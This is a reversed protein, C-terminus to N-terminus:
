PAPARAADDTTPASAVVEFPEVVEVSRDAVEDKATLVLRYEGPAFGALPFGILRTVNGAAATIRTAPVERVVAGNPGLLRYGASVHPQGDSDAPKAGYAAYQCGLFGGVAFTRRAVMLPQSPAQGPQKQFTDTVIPSSLRFAGPDPVEFEHTVSGIHGGNKERAILKAQYAGPLLELERVIPFGYAAYRLRSEERLKLNITEDYRKFEDTGRHVVLLLTEIADIQRDGAREFRFQGVSLEALVATRLKGAAVAEFSYASMRMPIGDVEYPSDLAAQFPKEAPPAEKKPAGDPGPAYYGRRARVVVDKRNVVVAIRRFKGDRRAGSPYYGLLYYSESERAIRGMGSALDNTNRISLGGTDAALSQAGESAMAEEGVYNTRDQRDVPGSWEASSFVSGSRLGESDVFYIAANARRSAQNIEAYEEVDPDFIFGESVLLVAKRGKVGALSDVIRKVMQLTAVQRRRAEQRVAQARSAVQMDITTAAGGDTRTERSGESLSYGSAEWRRGVRLAVDVDHFFDIQRAEYDSMYDWTLESTATGKQRKLAALLQEKGDGFRTTMWTASQTSLLTVHDEERLGETLFKEIAKKASQAGAPSIHLGDFVIVFTRGARKLVDTNTSVRQRITSQSPPGTPVVIPEFTAVTQPTGEEALTFDERTLGKIPMGNRDAVVVDVTVLEVDAAFTPAPAATPQPEVAFAAPVTAIALSISLLVRTMREDRRRPLSIAAGEIDLPFYAGSSGSDLRPLLRPL